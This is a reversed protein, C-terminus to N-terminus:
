VIKGIINKYNSTNFIYREVEGNEMSETLDMDM